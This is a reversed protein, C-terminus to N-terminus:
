IKVQKVSLVNPLKKIKAMLEDSVVSDISVVSM